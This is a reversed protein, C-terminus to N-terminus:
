GQEQRTRRGAFDRQVGGGARHQIAQQEQLQKHQAEVYLKAEQAELADNQEQLAAEIARNNVDRKILLSLITSNRVKLPSAREAVVQADAIQNAPRSGSSRNAVRHQTSAHARELTAAGESMRKDVDEDEQLTKRRKVSMRTEDMFGRRVQPRTM